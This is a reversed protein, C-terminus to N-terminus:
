RGHLQFVVNMPAEGEHSQYEVRGLYRFPAAKGDIGLKKERVFLHLDIGMAKHGIIERGRKSSPRTSNQSQWHFTHEDIFHDHYRHNEAKGQKNLTVLLVHASKEPLVVHGSNWSGPNFTEGFLEPIEERMFYSGIALDLPDIVRKLRAFTRMSDNAPLDEFEPNTAQLVYRSEAIKNVVRLLYQNDGTEDQREIAMVNGTISGASQSTVVELLLYDGDHIPTKGGNMSNGSARAIFHRSPDLRGYTVPLSRYEEADATGTKFHGCAIRINPFYPLEIRQEHPEFPVVNEAGSDATRIREQYRLLRYEVLEQTMGTFAEVELEAITFVPRFRGDELKFWAEDKNTLNGGIWANIPNKEWYRRWDVDSADPARLEKPLDAQLDPRRQFVARSDAVLQHATAPRRFGDNELLAELLIMKFSKTMETSHLVQFFKGHQSLCRKEETSLDGQQDVFEWWTGCQKELLKINVGAWYLESLTPRRGLSAQLADYDDAIGTTSLSKLFEIIKLDYNVYCGEPLALVQNEARRAFEALANYTAGVNFLAQPKNLFARHNGIFDMIVLREKNEQRRLGRGIQQLFLVKSETPRLMMVTDIDPIDVGENFLDVSFVVDLEGRRLQDMSEHRNVESRTHVAVARVGGRNFQNAMFEAHSISVCFALTRKQAKVRWERLAHRARGLTALKSSLTEPHFKGSRWPIEEYRVAEDHIGYYHFPCLLGAQIGRFLDYAYVLNEDCLALIDSQDSREPTATLGLLFRPRFHHLLRRYTKAQAHHFEDVVIYDFHEPSFRELHKARHMTQVSAFLMDADTERVEGRYQGIRASPLVSQFAAEAQLLIEERHAVFLVRRADAQQADFAALYTKGLGTAMVVLGRRYGEQRTTQLAELAEQQVVTPKPPPPEPDTSGPAVSPLDKRRRLEYHEIWNSTLPVARPDGFLAQFSQRIEQFGEDIPGETPEMVRYNWELGTTLATESINSSGIFAEGYVGGGRDTRVFIYAKLHFSQEGAEYIRVDAGREDLLLLRRLAQPDTVDLYDSTLIRVTPSPDKSLRDVLHDFLLRLGTAKIFAVGLEIEDARDIGALLQPLLPNQTGGTILRKKM